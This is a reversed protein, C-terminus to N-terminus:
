RVTVRPSVSLGPFLRCKQVADADTFVIKVPVRQVVKVYNGTANESPLSSFVQGSGAQFSDIKAALESDPCADVHVRVPQGPRMLSLQTEKFNATVWLGNQVVAVLAQGPSVFNGLHVSRRTVRGDAPAVVNTYSLQLIANAIGVDAQAVTAAAAAVAAEQAKIQARAAQVAQRSADLRAVAGRSTAGATDLQQRSIAKPDVARYRALDSQAQGLDAESVRANAAAQELNAQKLLVQARAQDLQAAAQIRQARAQDLKVQFDRPDLRILVQGAKVTQNDEVPIGIVRASVQSAIQSINGDIFADDTNEFHRASLWYLVGATVLAGLVVLGILWYLLKKGRSMPKAKDQAEQKEKNEQEAKSEIPRWQQGPTSAPPRAWDIPPQTLAAGDVQSAYGIPAPGDQENPQSRDGKM